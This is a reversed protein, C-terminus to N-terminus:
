QSPGEWLTWIFQELLRAMGKQGQWSTSVNLGNIKGSAKQNRGIVDWTFNNNNQFIEYELNINSEWLGAIDIQKQSAECVQFPFLIVLYCISLIILMLHSGLKKFGIINM